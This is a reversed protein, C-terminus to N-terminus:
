APKPHLFKVIIFAMGVIQLFNEIIIGYLFKQSNLFNWTNLGIMATLFLHFIIIVSIWSIIAISWVFQLRYFQRKGQIEVLEKQSTLFYNIYNASEREEKDTINQETASVIDVDFDKSAIDVNFDM